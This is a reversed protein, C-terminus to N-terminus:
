KNKGQNGESGGEYFQMPEQPRSTVVDSPICQATPDVIQPADKKGSNRMGQVQTRPRAPV